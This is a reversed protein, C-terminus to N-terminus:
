IQRALFMQPQSDIEANTAIGAVLTQSCEAKVYLIIIETCGHPTSKTNDADRMADLQKSVDTFEWGQQQRKLWGERLCRSPQGCNRAGWAVGQGTCSAKSKGTTDYVGSTAM